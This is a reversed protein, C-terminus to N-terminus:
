EDQKEKRLFELADNVSIEGRELRNLTENEAPEQETNDVDVFALNEAIRNLRNKITPYSVGFLSEMQKISGHTRVFASLFIQDEASLMFLPPPEFVGEIAIDSELIRVREIVVMKGQTLKTLEQWDHAM